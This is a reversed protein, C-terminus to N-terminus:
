SAACADSAADCQLGARECAQAYRIEDVHVNALECITDALDCTANALDCIREHRDARRRKGDRRRKWRQWLSSSSSRVDRGQSEAPPANRHPPAPQPVEEGLLADDPATPAEVDMAEDGDEDPDVEPPPRPSDPPPTPDRPTKAKAGTGPRDQAVAIRIGVNSLQSENRTLAQELADIDDQLQQVEAPSQAPRKPKCGESLTLLALGVAAAVLTRQTTPLRHRPTPPTPSRPMRGVLIRKFAPM